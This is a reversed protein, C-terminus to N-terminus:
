DIIESDSKEQDEINKKIDLLWKNSNNIIFNLTNELDDVKIQGNKLEELSFYDSGLNM